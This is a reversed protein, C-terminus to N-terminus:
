RGGKRQLKKQAEKVPEDEGKKGSNNTKQLIGGRDEKNEQKKRCSDDGNIQTNDLAAVTQIQM